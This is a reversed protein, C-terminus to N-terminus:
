KRNNKALNYLLVISNQINVKHGAIKNFKSILELIKTFQIKQMCEHQRQTIATANAEDEHWESMRNELIARALVRLVSVLLLVSLSYGKKTGSRKM